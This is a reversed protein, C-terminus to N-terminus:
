MMLNKATVNLLNTVNGVIVIDCAGAPILFSPLMCEEVLFLILLAFLVAMLIGVQLFVSMIMGAKSKEHGDVSEPAFMMALTGTYGNSIAFVMMIVFSAWNSGFIPHHKPVICLIFLAGFVVRSFAVIWLFRPKIIILWRPLMRGVFDFLQFLFINVVAFWQDDYPFEWSNSPIVSTMGPFLSLTVFFVSWVTVGFLWIKKLVQGLTAVPPHHLLTVSDSTNLSDDEESIELIQNVKNMHFKSFPLRILVFFSLVCLLELFAALIFYILTSAITGERSTGYGAKTIIRILGVMVGAVGQGTMVAGVYEPPFQSSLGLTANFAIATSIGSIFVLALIFGLRATTEVFFDRVFPILVMIIVFPVFAFMMRLTLNMRDGICVFIFQFLVTAVNFVISMIFQFPFNPFMEVFYDYATLFANWPFMTGTVFANLHM